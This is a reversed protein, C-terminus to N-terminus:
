PEAGEWLAQYFRYDDLARLLEAHARRWRADERQQWAALREADAAKVRARLREIAHTQVAVNAAM